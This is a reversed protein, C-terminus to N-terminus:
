EIDLFREIERSRKVGGSCTKVTEWSDIIMRWVPRQKWDRKVGSEWSHGWGWRLGAALTIKRIRQNSQIVREPHIRMSKLIHNLHWPKACLARQTRAASWKSLEIKQRLPMQMRQELCILHRQTKKKWACWM